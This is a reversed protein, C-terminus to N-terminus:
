NEYLWATEAAEIRRVRSDLFFWAIGAAIAALHAVMLMAACSIGWEVIYALPDGARAAISMATRYMEVALGAFGILLCAVGAALVTVPGSRLRRPDYQKRILLRYINVITMLLGYLAAGLVPWVFRSADSFLRTDLLERGSFAAIFVLLAILVAREWRTRAQESLSGLFRRIPTQHVKVLGELAEDSLDCLELARGQAEEDSMGRSVCEDYIDGLDAAIELLIRSKVPQPLELRESTRQLTERFRTM